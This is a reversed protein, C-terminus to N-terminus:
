PQPLPDATTTTPATTTTTPATPTTTTPTTTTPTTTTTSSTPPVAGKKKPKPEPKPPPPEKTGVAIVQYDGRYSSYWTADYMLKGSPSYVRRRVSTSRSPSGSEVVVTKGKELTDDYTRKVPPPGTEVLPGTESKVRRGLPSGYLNVTLSSSGVFTRLLLWKKSDNRFRLDIDPYNVTADRGQPYHDIYLAHNTRSDIPLGAEYAANFVTTSVQCVGGGLGTQLEGNIIVPAARFGREPTREGTTRNFSFQAGPPILTHDILRSVLQVNHIRNAIGGYITTYGGVLRKIGMSKAEATTRAPPRTAVTVEAVRRAPSPALAAALLARSTKDVDLKRGDKHPVVEIERGGATVAFGADRPPRGVLRRFRDFYREAVPGGIKLTDAGGSPLLLMKAIRWRPIRWRTSALTLRVPRSVATKAKAAVPVLDAARVTPRDIHIPLEVPQRDFGALAEVILGAAADRDLVVGERGKVVRPELGRLRVAANRHPDDVKATLRALVEALAPEYVDVAPTVDTGLVRVGIRRLGQVPGFGEGERRASEVAAAWDVELMLRSPRIRFRHRGATFVVPVRRLELARRELVNQAAKPSLGGVDVGAVRAGEPLSASSGSYAFGVALLVLAVVAAALLGYRLVRLRAHRRRRGAPLTRIAGDLELGTM